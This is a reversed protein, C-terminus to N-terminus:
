TNELTKNILAQWNNGPVIHGACVNHTAGTVSQLTNTKGCLSHWGLLAFGAAEVAQPPWGLAISARVPLPSLHESLRQMLYNNMAGGGCIYWAEPKETFYNAADVITHVTLEAATAMRDAQRLQPWHLITDLMARGFDERGTSRPPKQKFFAHSLLSHLLPKSVKGSAALAGSKDYEGHNFARALGDMLLNGPGTDFGYIDGDPLICSVNAIGGINVVATATNRHGFLLGHAFPLLPAGQGGAAVDRRRFDAVTTIGTIEAITSPCGIQWSFAHKGVPLHRITQGHSAILEIATIGNDAATDQVAKAICEGLHRDTKGIMLMNNQKNDALQFLANRLDIPFPHEAFGQLSIGHNSVKVLAVDIADMSTGCMVGALLLTQEM